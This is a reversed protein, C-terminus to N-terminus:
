AQPAIVLRQASTATWAQEVDALPVARADIDFTGRGVEAALEGLEALIDGTPVSGQGSGVLELRAARLAASPIPATRGAVSGIQVGTLRQADDARAPIIAQLAAATPEGWLYDLVVDIERGAQALEDPALSIDGGRRAAGIVTGAGLRQAVAAAMRGANGGAGLILVSQGPQFAIRRRLAVWSSMAPNMAAALTIPDADDPLPISRRLDIAVRQAMAGNPTDLLLFYRLTGDPLRGV